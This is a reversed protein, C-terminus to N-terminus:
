WLVKDIIRPIGVTTHANDLALFKRLGPSGNATNWLEYLHQNVGIAALFQDARWCNRGGGSPSPNCVGKIPHGIWTCWNVIGLPPTYTDRRIRYYSKGTHKGDIMPALYPFLCHAAKSAAVFGGRTTVSGPAYLTNYINTLEESLPSGTCPNILSAPPKPLPLAYGNIWDISVHNLSALVKQFATPGVLKSNRHMGYAKLLGQISGVAKGSAIWCSLSGTAAIGKNRAEIYENYAKNYRPGNPMGNYERINRPICSPIARISIGQPLPM